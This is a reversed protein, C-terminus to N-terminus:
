SSFLAASDDIGNDLTSNGLVERGSAAGVVGAGDLSTSISM